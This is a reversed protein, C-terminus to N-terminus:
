FRGYKKFRKIRKYELFGNKGFKMKYLKAYKPIKNLPILKKEHNCDAMFKRHTLTCKIDYIKEINEGIPQLVVIFTIITLSLKTKM